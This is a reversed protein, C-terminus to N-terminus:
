RFGRKKQNWGTMSANYYWWNQNSIRSIAPPMLTSLLRHTASLLIQSPFTNWKGCNRFDFWFWVIILLCL